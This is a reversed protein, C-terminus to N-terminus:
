VRSALRYLLRVPLGVINWYDGRIEEIFLAARGQIAYAGAKDLPELSMVYWEIEAETLPAFRVETREHAVLTLAENGERVLAVGTLVEHWRGSLLQLMRRADVEDLPKGLVHEDVVVVTDAGLVMRGANIGAAAAQAKERALREVYAVAGEAERRAEDIGVAHREFPWGVAQLIEARRPSASALVLKEKFLRGPPQSKTISAQPQPEKEMLSRLLNLINEVPAKLKKRARGLIL